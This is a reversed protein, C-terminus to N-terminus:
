VLIYFNVFQGEMIKMLEKIISRAEVASVGTLFENTNYNFSYHMNEVCLQGEDLCSM